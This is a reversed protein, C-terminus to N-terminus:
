GAAAPPDVDHEPTRGTPWSPGLDSLSAEICEVSLRITGDGSFILEIVGEPSQKGADFGIALLSLIADDAGQRIRKSKVSLVRNFHLGCRLRQSPQQQKESQWDFRNGVLVFTQSDKLYQLDGIRFVADQSHASIIELDDRDLATLKLLEMEM